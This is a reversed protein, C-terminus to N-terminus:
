ERSLRPLVRLSRGFFAGIAAFLALIVMIPALITFGFEPVILIFSFVVFLIIAQRTHYELFESRNKTFLRIVLGDFLFYSLTALTRDRRSVSRNTYFNKKVISSFRSGAAPIKLKDTQFNVKPLKIKKM